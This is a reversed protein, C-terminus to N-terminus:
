QEEKQLSPQSNVETHHEIKSQESIQAIDRHAAIQAIDRHAAIQAIDRNASLQAFLGSIDSRVGTATLSGTELAQQWTTTGAVLNFLTESNMEVVNPPTGRRHTQGEVCQVAAYPPVRVEVSKGPAIVTLTNLIEKVKIMTLPDRKEIM